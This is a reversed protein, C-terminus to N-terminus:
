YFACLRIFTYSEQKGLPSAKWSIMPLVRRVQIVEEEIAAKM